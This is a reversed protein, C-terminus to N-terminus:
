SPAAVVTEAAPDYAAVAPRQRLRRDSAAAPASETTLSPPRAAVDWPDPEAAAAPPAAEPGSPTPPGAAATEDAAADRRAAEAEALGEHARGVVDGEPTPEEVPEGYSSKPDSM